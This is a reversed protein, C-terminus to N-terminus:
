AAERFAGPSSFARGGHNKGGCSCECAGDPKGSMCKANCVHLSPNKKWEIRRQAVHEQGCSPCTGVFSFPRVTDVRWGTFVNLHSNANHWVNSLEVTEGRCTTFTKFNAM